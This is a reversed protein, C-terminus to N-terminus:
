VCKEGRGLIEEAHARTTDSIDIGGLMRSLEDIREERSLLRIQTFTQNDRSEKAVRYHHVGYCAIQPLHTICVVQHRGALRKLQLGVLEAIRGGIGADVEDFIMTEAEGKRGLLSKMALLIRSLEGGSAVKALPKLDEGPNASLLFEVRDIGTPTFVPTRSEAEGVPGEEFRAAFRARAMDLSGLVKGVEEELVSAAERRKASLVTAQEMYRRRVDDLAKGLSDERSELDEEGALEQKLEGQRQLMAELSGGYKKGLRQLQTLREEVAALRQPDYSIRHAYQQVGHVLEEIHIKAQRLHTTLHDLSPDIRVLTEMNREVGSLQELVAGRGAYLTQNTQEAADRLTAAHRLLNREQELETDEGPKLRANDLEQLQFRMYDLKEAREKKSRILRKLEEQVSSWETFLERVVACITELDGYNDLLDLHLSTDLLLQHEHQGSISILGRSLSQLQQLSVTQENIYIRNKGSRSISRRISLTDAPELGLAELRRSLPTSEGQFLFSAEVTAEQTGTRIMEQSARSGLILNVAGILISKGAGTEGSIVNLGEKFGIELDRIIAFNHVSLEHLV